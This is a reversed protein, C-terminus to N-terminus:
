HSQSMVSTGAHHPTTYWPTTHGQFSENFLKM